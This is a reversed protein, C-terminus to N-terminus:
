KDTAVMSAEMLQDMKGKRIFELSCGAPIKKLHKTFLLDKISNIHSEKELKWGLLKRTVYFKSWILFKAIKTKNTKHTYLIREVERERGNLPESDEIIGNNSM